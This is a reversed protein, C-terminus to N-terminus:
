SQVLLSVMSTIYMYICVEESTLPDPWVLADGEFFGFYLMLQLGSWEQLNILMSSTGHKRGRIRAHSSDVMTMMMM